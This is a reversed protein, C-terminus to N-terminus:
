EQGATRCAENWVEIMTPTVNALLLIENPLEQCSPDAKKAWPM